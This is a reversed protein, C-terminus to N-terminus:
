RPPIRKKAPSGVPPPAPVPGYEHATTLPAKLRAAEEAAEVLAKTLMETQGETLRIPHEPLTDM